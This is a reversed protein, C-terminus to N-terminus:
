AHCTVIMATTSSPISWLLIMDNSLV